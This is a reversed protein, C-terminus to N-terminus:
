SPYANLDEGARRGDLFEYYGQAGIMAANDGCLSLEPVFLEAGLTESAAAPVILTLMLACATLLSVFRRM